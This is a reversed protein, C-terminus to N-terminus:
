SDAVPQSLLSAVGGALIASPEYVPSVSTCDLFPFSRPRRTPEVNSSPGAYPWHATDDDGGGDNHQAEVQLNENFDALYPVDQKPLGLGQGGCGILALV